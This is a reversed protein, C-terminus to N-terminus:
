KIPPAGMSQARAKEFHEFVKQWDPGLHIECQTWNLIEVVNSITNIVLKDADKQHAHSLVNKITRKFPSFRRRYTVQYTMPDNM